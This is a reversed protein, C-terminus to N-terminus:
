DNVDDSMAELLEIEAEIPELKSRLREEATKHREDLKSNVQVISSM